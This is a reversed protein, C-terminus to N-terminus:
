GSVPQYCTLDAELDPDDSALHSHMKARSHFVTLKQLPFFDGELFWVQRNDPQEDRRLQQHMRYEAPQLGPRRLPTLNGQFLRSNTVVVADRGTRVKRWETDREAMKIRMGMGEEDNGTRYM